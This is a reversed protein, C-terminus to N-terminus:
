TYLYGCIDVWYPLSIAIQGQMYPRWKGDGGQRTEAIFMTVRAPNYPDVTLDRLGRIVDDMTTLLAGWDQMKMQETGVLNKKLRRQIETISDVVISAFSHQGSALWQATQQFDCWQRTTVVAIDWTGDYVPPAN